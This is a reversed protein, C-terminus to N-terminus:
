GHVLDHRDVGRGCFVVKLTRYSEADELVFVVNQNISWKM